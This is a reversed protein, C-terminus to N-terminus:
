QAAAVDQRPWDPGIVAVSLACAKIAEALGSLDDVAPLVRVDAALPLNKLVQSSFCLPLLHRPLPDM